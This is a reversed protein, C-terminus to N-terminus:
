VRLALSLSRSSNPSGQMLARACNTSVSSRIQITLFQKDYAGLLKPIDAEARKYADLYISEGTLLYGREASEAELVEKELASTYRLVDNTHDVWEFSERQRNLNVALAIAAAIFMGVAVALAGSVPGPRVLGWRSPSLSGSAIEEPMM